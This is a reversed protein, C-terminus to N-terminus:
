RPKNGRDGDVPFGQDMPGKGVSRGRPMDPFHKRERDGAGADPRRRDRFAKDLALLEKTLTMLSLGAGLIMGLILFIPGTGLREDLWQGGRYGLFLYVATTLVWSIGLSGYRAFDGLGGRM